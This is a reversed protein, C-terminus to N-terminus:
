HNKRYESPSLSFAKKFIKSFYNYDPIGSRQAIINIPLNTQTLYECARHLRRKKIYEAPSDNFYNRFVSYLENRSLRFRACLDQVSLPEKLHSNIYRELRANIAVNTTSMVSKLYEYSACVDLIRIASKIKNLDFLPLQEYQAQLKEIQNEDIGELMKVSFKSEQTRIQGVGIYGIINEGYLIPSLCELLGAHCIYRYQRHTKKCEALARKDCLICKQDLQNNKRLLKCFPTHKEPYYCFERGTDDYMCIKIGTLSHFDKLLEQMKQLDYGNM